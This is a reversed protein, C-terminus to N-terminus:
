EPKSTPCTAGGFLIAGQRGLLITLRLGLDVRCCGREEQKKVIRIRNKGKTVAVKDLTVLGWKDATATGSQVVKNDAPCDNRLSLTIEWRSPEDVITEPEWLQYLNIGGLLEKYTTM